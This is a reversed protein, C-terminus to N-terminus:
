DTDSGTADTALFRKHFLLNIDSVVASVQPLSNYVAEENVLFTSSSGETTADAYMGAHLDVLRSLLDSLALDIPNGSLDVDLRYLQVDHLFVSLCSFYHTLYDRRKQELMSRPCFLLNDHTQLLMHMMLVSDGFLRKYFRHKKEDSFSTVFQHYYPELSRLLRMDNLENVTPVNITISKQDVPVSKSREFWQFYGKRRSCDIAVVAIPLVKNYWYKATTTAIRVPVAHRASIKRFGKVQVYFECGKLSGDSVVEVRYDIGFDREQPIKIDNWLQSSLLSEFIKEADRAIIQAESVQPYEATM